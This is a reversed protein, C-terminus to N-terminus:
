LGPAKSGPFPQNLPSAPIQNGTPNQLQQQATAAQQDAFLNNPFRVPALIQMSIKKKKDGEGKEVTVSIEVSDPFRGKTISDGQVSDWTGVYDQKGKGFYRLKFETVNELLVVGDEQVTIDGEVVNSTKRILCNSSKSQDGPKKCNQLLYGVKIFDAQRSSERIRSSNMTPFYCDNDHGVFHTTPDVRNESKQNLPDQPDNPNYAALPPNPPPNALPAGNPNAGPAAPPAKSQAIRKKKIVERLEMELDTFHFALNIDREMVKLSDRVQALDDVQNQIKIKNRLAQQIAQSSLLSLTAMIVLVIIVELLTFGNKSSLQLKVSM